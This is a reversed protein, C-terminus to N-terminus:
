SLLNQKIWLLCRKQGKIINKLSNYYIIVWIFCLNYSFIRFLCKNLLKAIIKCVNMLPKFDPQNKKTIPTPVTAIFINCRSIKNLDNTIKLNKNLCSKLKEKKVELTKDNGKLLQSVRDLSIDFGIIEYSSSLGVALPLGVYGLGLVAIKKEKIM